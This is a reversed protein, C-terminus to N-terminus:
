PALREITWGDATRRYLFRDHLRSPRGQWFEVARHALRFGGWHPPLPVEEGFREALELMRQELEERGALPRSQQSAWAGLRAGLPRTAFYAESEERTTRAVDGEIRVQRHVSAWYFVLAAHPNEALERGKRSEYNTFFVFGRADYGKLLVLRASPHGRADATALTMATPEPIGAAVAAEYWARFQDVPDPALDSLELGRGELERRLDALDM